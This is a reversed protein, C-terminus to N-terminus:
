VFSDGSNGPRNMKDTGGKPTELVNEDEGYLLKLAELYKGM